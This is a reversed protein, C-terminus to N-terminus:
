SQMLYTMLDLKTPSSRLFTKVVEKFQLHLPKCAQLVQEPLKSTSRGTGLVHDLTSKFQSNPLVGAM